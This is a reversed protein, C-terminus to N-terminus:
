WFFKDLFDFSKELLGAKPLKKDKALKNTLETIKDSNKFDKNELLEKIITNKSDMSYDKLITKLEKVNTEGIKGTLTKLDKFLRYKSFGLCAAGIGLGTITMWLITNSHSSQEKKPKQAINQSNGMQYATSGFAVNRSNNSAYLNYGSPSLNLSDVM